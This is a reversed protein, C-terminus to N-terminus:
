KSYGLNDMYRLSLSRCFIHAKVLNKEEYKIIIPVFFIGFLPGNYLPEVTARM